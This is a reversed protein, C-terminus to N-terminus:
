LYNSSVLDYGSTSKCVATREDEKIRRLVEMGDMKLLRLDLLVVKPPTSVNRGTYSGTVFLFDLAEAGDKM